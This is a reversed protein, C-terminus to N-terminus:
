KIEFRWRKAQEFNREDTAVVKVTHKGSPLRKPPQYTLRDTSADYAFADIRVAGGDLFLSINAGTLDTEPDNVTASITPRHARTKSGPPPALDTVVPRQNVYVAFINDMSPARFFPGGFWDARTSRVAMGDPYVDKSPDNRSDHAKWEYTLLNPQWATVAYHRGAQVTGPGSLEVTVMSPTDPIESPAIYGWSIQERVWLSEGSSSEFPNPISYLYVDIGQWAEREPATDQLELQVSSVKGSHEPVFTQGTETYLWWDTNSEAGLTNADLTGYPETAVAVACSLVLGACIAALLLATRNGM